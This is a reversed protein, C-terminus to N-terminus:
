LNAIRKKIAFMIMKMLMNEQVHALAYKAEMIINQPAVLLVLTMALIIVPNTFIANIQLLVLPILVAEM